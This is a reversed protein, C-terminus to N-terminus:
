ITRSRWEALMAKMKAARAPQENALNHTEGLDARLDYLESEGTDYFDILKWRGQRVAGASRGGLFHPKDLPYHWYIPREADLRPAPQAGAFGLLMHHLDTTTVPVSDTKGARGFGPARIIMPVRIGGEYVTSKGARLPANSTVRDEGGNDSVFVIATRGAIGLKRVTETILGVGDDISELMAALEPNNRTKGAGAKAAYKPALAPKGALRTHTSYHALYLFFPNEKNRSIFDVAEHNLRDTLYEGETRAAVEPMFFYPHFYDGGAIYKSESCIVEDFGHLKPDGKRKSYDGMLHWKGILASRYGNKSLKRAISPIDPSLFKPDDARLYDTIGVKAPHEGTMLSVRTPTCVPAASYADTFRVGERALRDLHPTENFRNGYCGLEAWGLDDALILIINTPLKPPLFAAAATSLFTRRNM